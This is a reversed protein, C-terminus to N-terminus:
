SAYLEGVEGASARERARQGRRAAVLAGRRRGCRAVPRGRRLHHWRRNRQWRRRRRATAALEPERGGRRRRGGADRHDGRGRAGGRRIDLDAEMDARGLVGEERAVGKLNDGLSLVAAAGELARGLAVLAVGHVRRVPADRTLLAQRAVPCARPSSRAASGAREAHAYGRWAAAMQAHTRARKGTSLGSGAVTTSSPHVDVARGPM